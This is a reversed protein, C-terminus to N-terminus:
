SHDGHAEAVLRQHTILTSDFFCVECAHVVSDLYKIERPLDPNLQSPHNAVEWTSNDRRNAFRVLPTAAGPAEHTHGCHTCQVRSVVLILAQPIWPSLTAQARRHREAAARIEAERQSERNLININKREAAPKSAASNLANSDVGALLDALSLSELERNTYQPHKRKSM